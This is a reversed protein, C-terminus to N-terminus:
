RAGGGGGGGGGGAIRPLVEPPRYCQLQCFLVRTSLHRSAPHTPPHTAMSSFTTTKQYPPNTISTFHHPTTVSFPSRVPPLPISAARV